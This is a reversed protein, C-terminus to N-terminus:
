KIFRLYFKEHKDNEVELIYAGAALSSVDLERRNEGYNRILEQNQNTLVTQHNANTSYVRFNLHTNSSSYEEKYYFYVKNDIPKYQEGSLEHKLHAYIIPTERKCGFSFLSNFIKEKFVKSQAEIHIDGFPRALRLREVTAWNLRNTYHVIIQNDTFECYIRLNNYDLFYLPTLSGLQNKDPPTSIYYNNGIRKFEIYKSGGGAGKFHIRTNIVSNLDFIYWGTENEELINVTKAFSYTTNNQQNTRELQNNSLNNNTLTYLTEETWNAPFGIIVPKVYVMGGSIIQIEYVSPTLGNITVLTGANQGEGEQVIENNLKDIIFYRYPDDRLSVITRKIFRFSLSGRFRGGCSPHLINTVSIPHRPRRIPILQIIPKKLVLKRSEIDKAEAGLVVNKYVENVTLVGEDITKDNVSYILDTGIKKLTVRDNVHVPTGQSSLVGEKVTYVKDGIIHLGYRMQSLDTYVVSSDSLGISQLGKVTALDFGLEFDDGLDVLLDTTAKSIAETPTYFNDKIEMGTLSLATLPEGIWKKDQFILKGQNNYVGVNYYAGEPIANFEKITAYDTGQLFTSDLVYVLTDGNEDILTENEFSESIKIKDVLPYPSIVYDYPPYTDGLGTIDLTISGTSTLTDYEQVTPCVALVDVKVASSYFHLGNKTTRVRYHTTTDLGETIYYAENADAISTFTTGNTSKQWLLTTEETQNVVSLETSGGKCINTPFVSVDGAEVDIPLFKLQINMTNNFAACYTCNTPFSIDKYDRKVRQETSGATFYFTPYDMTFKGSGNEFRFELNSNGNYSFPTKFVIDKWGTGNYTIDGDYVLMFGTTDSPYNPEGNPYATSDTHRVYIRQNKYTRNAPSQAVHVSIRTLDGSIGIEEKTYIMMAYSYDYYNYFPYRGTILTGDGITTSSFASTDVDVVLTDSYFVCQDITTAIRYYTRDYLPSTTFTNGTANAISSFTLNDTSYQWQLTADNPLVSSSLEITEGPTVLHNDFVIAVSEGSCPVFDLKVNPRGTVRNCSFCNSPFNGDKFDRKTRPASGTTFRFYPISSQWTGDHNEFLFELNDTGNYQFPLQFDISKWGAGEFTIPGQYVLQFDATGPYTNTTYDNAKSHRVYIRQDKMTRNVPTQDVHFSIRSLTGTTNLEESLYLTSSWSYDYYNNLPFNNTINTGTGIQKTILQSNDVTITIVNSYSVCNGISAKVRYYRTSFIEATEYSTSTVQTSSFNTNDQSVEWLISSNAPKQSVTLVTKEWPQLTTNRASILLPETSCPSFSLQINPRSNVRHCLYCASPFSKDQFDRKTRWTSNGTLSHKFYPFGNAYTGDHNEFLFELNDSGNYSFPTNFTITKWGTGSYTITGEFVLEYGNTGPHNSTSHSSLSTHRVYIKQNNMVFNSPANDVHFSVSNLHGSYNIESALYVVNSWSYDYYGNYPARYDTENGTGITVVQQANLGVFFFSFLGTLLTTKLFIAIKM